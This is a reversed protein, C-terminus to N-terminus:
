DITGALFRRYQRDLQDYDVGTLEALTTPTAKGTYVAVAVAAAIAILSFDLWNHRLYQRRHLTLGLHLLRDIVFAALVCAQIVHLLGRSVPLPDYFGYELALASIAVAAAVAVLADCGTLLRRRLQFPRAPQENGNM